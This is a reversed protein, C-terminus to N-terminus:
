PTVETSKMEENQPTNIYHEYKKFKVRVNNLAYTKNLQLTDVYNGWLMLKIHAMPDAVIIDQKKLGKVGM